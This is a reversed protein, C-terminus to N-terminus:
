PISKHTIKYNEVNICASWMNETEDRKMREESRVFYITISNNLRKTEM